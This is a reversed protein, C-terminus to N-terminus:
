GTEITQFWEDAFEADISASLETLRAVSDSYQLITRMNGDLEFGGGMLGDVIGLEGKLLSKWKAATASLLFGYEVEGPGELLRAGTCEGGELRLYAYGTYGTVDDETVYADFENRLYRPMTGFDMEDIPIQIMEFVIDGDFGVGWDESAIRYGEDANIEGEYAAFWAQSPFVLPNPDCSVDVM